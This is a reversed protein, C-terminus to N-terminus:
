LNIQLKIMILYGLGIDKIMQLAFRKESDWSFLFDEVRSRLVNINFIYRYASDLKILAVNKTYLNRDNERQIAEALVEFDLNLYCEFILICTSM